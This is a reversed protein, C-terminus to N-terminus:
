GQNLNFAKLFYEAAEEFRLNDFLNEAIVANSVAENLNLEGFYIFPKLVNLSEPDNFYKLKDEFLTIEYKSLIKKKKLLSLFYIKWMNEHYGIEFFNSKRSEFDMQLEELKNAKILIDYYLALHNVNNPLLEVADHAYKIAKEFDLKDSYYKGLEFAYIGLNPNASSSKHLLNLAISDKKDRLFYTAVLTSMPITTVTIDPFKSSYIALDEINLRKENSNFDNILFAQVIMSEFVKFNLFTLSLSLLSFFILIIKSNNKM